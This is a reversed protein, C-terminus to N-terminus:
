ISCDECRVYHRFNLILGTNNCKDCYLSLQGEPAWDLYKEDPFQIGYYPEMYETDRRMIIGIKKKFKVKDGAKFKM